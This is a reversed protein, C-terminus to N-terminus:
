VIKARDEDSLGADPDEFGAVRDSTKTADEPDSLQSTNDIAPKQDSMMNYAPALSACSLAAFCLSRVASAFFLLM